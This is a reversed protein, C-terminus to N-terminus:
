ENRTPFYRFRASLDVAEAKTRRWGDGPSTNQTTGALIARPRGDWRNRFTQEQFDAGSLRSRFPGRFADPSTQFGTQGDSHTQAATRKPHDAPSTRHAHGGVTSCTSAPGMAAPRSPSGGGLPSFPGARRTAHRHGGSADHREGAVRAVFMERVVMAHQAPRRPIGQASSADQESMQDPGECRTPQHDNAHVIRDLPAPPLADARAADITIRDGGHASCNRWRETTRTPSKTRPARDHAGRTYKPDRQM